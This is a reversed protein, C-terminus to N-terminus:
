ARPGRKTALHVLAYGLGAIIAILALVGLAGAHDGARSTEALVLALSM